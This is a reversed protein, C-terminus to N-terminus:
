FMITFLLDIESDGLHVVDGNITCVSIGFLNPNVKKIKSYLRSSKKKIKQIEEKNM